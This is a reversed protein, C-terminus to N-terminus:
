IKHFIAERVIIQMVLVLPVAIVAGAIGMLKGGVMLALLTIMPKIGVARRMVTPVIFNNEAQQILFYLAAVALAKIPSVALALLIAPVSSIIPGAVPLIELIGAVLALPLAYEIGLLLLGIYSMIGIVTCLLLQGRVWAGLREEIKYIVPIVKQSAPKGLLEEMYEDLHERELLLYFSFVLLSILTVLNSFAGLTLRFINTSVTGIQQSILELNINLSQLIKESHEPLRKTLKVSENILPPIVLTGIVALFLLILIYVLLIAIGRPFHWKELKEVTPRLASVLIFAVFITLIIDKVLWFLWLFLFFCVTFIITRHSIEIKRTM